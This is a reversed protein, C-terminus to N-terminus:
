VVSKRDVENPGPRPGPLDVQQLHDLGFASLQIARM